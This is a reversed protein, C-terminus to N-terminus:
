EPKRVKAIMIGAYVPISEIQTLMSFNAIKEAIGSFGCRCAVMYQISSFLFTKYQKSLEGAVLDNGKQEKNIAMFDNIAAKFPKTFSKLTYQLMAEETSSASMQFKVNLRERLPQSNIETLQWQFPKSKGHTQSLDFLYGIDLQGDKQGITAIGKAGRNVFRGVRNWIPM